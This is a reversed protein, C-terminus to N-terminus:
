RLARVGAEDDGGAGLGRALEVGAVGVPALRLIPDLVQFPGAKGVPEGAMPKHGILHSSQEMARGVAQQVRQTAPQHPRAAFPHAQFRHAEPEDFDAAPDALQGRADVQAEGGAM